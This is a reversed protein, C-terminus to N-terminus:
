VFFSGMYLDLLPHSEMSTKHGHYVNPLGEASVHTLYPYSETAQFGVPHEFDVAQPDFGIPEYWAPPSACEATYLSDFLPYQQNHPWPLGGIGSWEFTSPDCSEFITGYDMQGHIDDFCSNTDEAPSSFGVGPSM